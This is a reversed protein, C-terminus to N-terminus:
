ETYRVAEAPPLNAAKWSPGLIAAVTLLYAVLVVTVITVTPVVFVGFQGGPTAATANYYLWVALATGVGTGLLTIYSYELLFSSLVMGRTFGTARLMGISTRRETVARLAIIGMGAIGVALGLAVFIELLGIVGQITQVSTQLIQAFNFLQLGYSFFARKLDQSATAVSVGSAVKLLSGQFNTYGLATTTAPNVWFGTLFQQDMYAIVTVNAVAHTAPNELPVVAGLAVVPHAAGGLNLQGPAYSSDVVAVSTNTAVDSWVQSATMGNWTHTFNYQNTTYFNDAPPGGVPVGYVSDTWPGGYGPPYSVVTGVTASIAVTVQSALTSNNRIEGALDPISQSSFGFFTYGGSEAAVSNSLAGEVSSGYAAVVVVTFIVMAFIAFNVASRLPRRRPYALGVRVVPVRSGGRGALRVLGAVILDSNFVFLLVAGLVMEIGEVFVAFITGSHSSGVLARHFQVSGGWAVLLIGVASFAYRNPVFRSAVLGGGVIALGLGLFPLSVDGSGTRTAAFLLGGFVLLVAGLYALVTYAGRSPAPEPISRIARVINLRSVRASTAAITVVTLLFGIVYAILLSEPSVTFSQVFSSAVASSTRAITRSYILVLVYGVGVGLATGALASLAAYVTWEFYYVYVLGRRTLGVARLMGMEGKREEALTVFIGVILLAGAVISFLGLVLFLTAISEGATVAQNLNSQLVPYAVLGAPSGLSVLTTNLFATVSDSHAVGGTLSGVNTVAIFNVAGSENAFTQATALTVFANNGGLFGGRTDDQVIGQVVLSVAAAGYLEVRDGAHAGLNSALEDDLLVTGAAPGATTTGNDYVFSGLQSSQNANVGIVQAGSEPVGTTRDYVSGTDIIEPATGAILSNTATHNAIAGYISGSFFAYPASGQAVSDNYIAEDTYGYNQYVFHVNEAAVTDNIVLSGSIIATGVLLGLIILVSRWRGRRVNRMAVRAPVRNALALVTTVVAVVVMVLVLLLVASPM